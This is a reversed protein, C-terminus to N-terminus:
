TIEASNKKEIKIGECPIYFGFTSGKNYISKVFVEGNHAEVIGKVITLGLGTGEARREPGTEVRFFKTFLKALNEKKVGAGTDTVSIRIGKKEKEASITITGKETFKLANSVLNEAAQRLKYEDGCIKPLKQQIKTVLKLGKREIAPRYTEACAKLVREIDVNSYNMTMTKAEIRGVDMIQRILLILRQMDKDLRRLIEKQPPNLTGKREFLDLSAFLPTLPTMIEHAAMNMFDSKLKETKKLEEYAKKLDEESRKRVTVDAFVILMGNLIKRGSVTLFRDKFQTDGLDFSERHVKICKKLAGALEPMEQIFKLIEQGISEDVNTEKGLLEIAQYNIMTIYGKFDISIIGYPANSIISLLFDKIEVTEIDTRTTPNM